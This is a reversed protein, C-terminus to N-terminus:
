SYSLIPLLYKYLLTNTPPSVRQYYPLHQSIIPLRLYDIIILTSLSLAISLKQCFHLATLNFSSPAIMKFVACGDKRNNVRDM